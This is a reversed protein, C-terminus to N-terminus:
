RPICIKMGVRMNYPDIDPNAAMLSNLSIRYSKAILYLTDGKKVTYLTGRCRANNEGMHDDEDDDDEDFEDEDPRNNPMNPRTNPMNPRAPPTPDAPSQAEPMEGPICLKMGIRLNYPNRIQNAMMLDCVSVGFEQGVSYLTDGAKVTYVATCYCKKKM